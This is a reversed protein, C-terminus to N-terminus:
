LYEFVEYDPRQEFATELLRRHLRVLCPIGNVCDPMSDRKVDRVSECDYVNAWPYKGSFMTTATIQFINVKVVFMNLPLTYCHGFIMGVHCTRIIFHRCHLTRQHVM